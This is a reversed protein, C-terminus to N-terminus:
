CCIREEDDTALRKEARAIFQERQALQATVLLVQAARKAVKLSEKPTESLGCLVKSNLSVDKLPKSRCSSLSTSTTSAVTGAGSVQSCWCIGAEEHDFARSVSCAVESFTSTTRPHDSGMRRSSAVMGESAHPTTKGSISFLFM